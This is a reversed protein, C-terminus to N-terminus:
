HSSAQAAGVQDLSLTATGIEVDKMLLKEVLVQLVSSPGMPHMSVLGIGAASKRSDVVDM